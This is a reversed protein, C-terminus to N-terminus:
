IGGQAAAVRSGDQVAVTAVDQAHGWLAVDVVLAFVVVLLVSAYAAEVLAQGRQRRRAAPRRIHASM